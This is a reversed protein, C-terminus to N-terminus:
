SEGLGYGLPHLHISTLLQPEPWDVPRKMALSHPGCGLEGWGLRDPPDVAALAPRHSIGSQVAVRTVEQPSGEQTLRPM